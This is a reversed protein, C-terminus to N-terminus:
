DKIEPIMSDIIKLMDEISLADLEQKEKEIKYLTSLDFKEV